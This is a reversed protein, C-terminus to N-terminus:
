NFYAHTAWRMCMKDLRKERPQKTYFVQLSVFFFLNRSSTLFTKKKKALHKRRSICSACSRPSSYFSAPHAIIFFCVCCSIVCVRTKRKIKVRFKNNVSLFFCDHENCMANVLRQHIFSCKTKEPSSNQM